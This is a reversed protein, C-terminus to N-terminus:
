SVPCLTSPISGKRFFINRFIELITKYNTLPLKVRKTKIWIENGVVSANTNWKRWFFVVDYGVRDVGVLNCSDFFCSNLYCSDFGDLIFRNFCKFFSWRLLKFDFRGFQKVFFWGFQKLIFRNLQKLIFRNLQKLFSRFVKERIWFLPIKVLVVEDSLHFVKM